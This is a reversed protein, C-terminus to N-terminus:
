QDAVGLKAAVSVAQSLWKGLILNQLALFSAPPSTEPM